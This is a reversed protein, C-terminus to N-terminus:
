IADARFGLLAALKQAETQGVINFGRDTCGFLLRADVHTRIAADLHNDAGLRSSLAVFGAKRLHDSVQDGHWNFGHLNDQAVGVDYLGAAARM